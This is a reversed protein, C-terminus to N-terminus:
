KFATVCFLKGVEQISYRNYGAERLLRQIRRRPFFYVPCGKLALRVKRVPARWTWFRPFSMIARDKIVTHMQKLVPLPDAIYDFLGIGIAVDFIDTSSFQLLDSQVFSTKEALEEKLALDKCRGIMQESIDIGTVHKCGRRALELAYRGTGCGVDLFTRGAIPQAHELAYEYRQYMDKRFVRDLWTGLSGKRHSYISDFEEITKNWFRRQTNLESEM